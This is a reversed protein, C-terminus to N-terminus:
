RIRISLSDIVHQLIKKNSEYDKIVDWKIEDLIEPSTTRIFLMSLDLLDQPLQADLISLYKNMEKANFSSREIFLIARFITRIANEHNYCYNFLEKELFQNENFDRNQSEQTYKERISQIVYAVGRIGMYDVRQKQKYFEGDGRPAIGTKWTVVLWRDINDNILNILNFITRDELEKKLNQNHEQMEDVQNRLEIQTYKLDVSQQKMQIQQGLFAIYILFVGALSWLGVSTGGLYDGYEGWSNFEAYFLVFVLIVGIAILAKAYGEFIIIRSETKIIYKDAAASLIEIEEKKM